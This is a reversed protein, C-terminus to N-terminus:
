ERWDPRPIRWPATVIGGVRVAGCRCCWSVPGGSADIAEERVDYTAGSHRCRRILWLHIRDLIQQLLKAM